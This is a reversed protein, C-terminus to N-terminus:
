RGQPRGKKPKGPPSTTGGARPELRSMLDDLRQRLAALESATDQAAAPDRPIGPNSDAAVPPEEEPDDEFEAGAGATGSGAGAPGSGSGPGAGFPGAARAADWFASGMGMGPANRLLDWGKQLAQGWTEGAESWQKWAGALFGALPSAAATGQVRILAHLLEVPLLEARANEELIVQLLVSRTLDEETRADLVEVREGGRILAALEELTVYRARRTDYLRRNPYKKIRLPPPSPPM